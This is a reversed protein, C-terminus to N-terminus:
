TLRYLREGPHSEAPLLVLGRPRRRQIWDGIASCAACTAAFYLRSENAVFPRWRPFWTRVRKDYERWSDGFRGLLQEREHWRALGASYAILVLGGAAFWFSRFAIALALYALSTSIQMPNSVYAYPGTQVLRRPPDYPLPTGLGRRCFEQVASYGPISVLFLLQLFGAGPLIPGSARTAQTLVIAPVLFGIVISFAVTQLLTRAEVREQQATWRCLLQAPLFCLILGAAEGVLWSKGLHLVPDCLPMVVVDLGLAAFLPLVGISGPLLLSGLTGWLVAWGLHLDVPFGLFLGGQAGFTWWGLERAMLHLPLLMSLNWAIALATGTALRRSPRRLAWLAGLLCLPYLLCAARILAPSRM